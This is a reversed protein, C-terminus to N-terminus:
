ESFYDEDISKLEYVDKIRVGINHKIMLRALEKGDILVIRKSVKLAFETASVPFSSTTVFVGKTARVRLTM